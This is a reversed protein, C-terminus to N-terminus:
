KGVGTEKIRLLVKVGGKKVVNVLDVLRNCEELTVTLECSSLLPDDKFTKDGAGTRAELVLRFPEPTLYSGEVLTAM